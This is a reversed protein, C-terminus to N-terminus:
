YFDIKDLEVVITRQQVAPVQNNDFIHFRESNSAIVAIAYRIM